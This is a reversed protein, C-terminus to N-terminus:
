PYLNQGHLWKGIEQAIKTIDQKAENISQPDTGNQLLINLREILARRKKYLLWFNNVTHYICDNM